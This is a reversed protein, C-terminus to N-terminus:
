QEATGELRELRKRNEEILQLSMELKNKLIQNERTLSLIQKEMKLMRMLPVQTEAEESLLEAEDMEEDEVVELLQLKSVSDNRLQVTNGKVRSPRKRRLVVNNEEEEEEKVPRWAPSQQQSKIQKSVPRVNLPTSSAMPVTQPKQGNLDLRESSKTRNLIYKGAESLVIRRGSQLANSITSPDPDEALQM